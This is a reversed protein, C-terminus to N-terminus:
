QESSENLILMSSKKSKLHENIGFKISELAGLIVGFQHLTPEKSYQSNIFNFIKQALPLYQEKTIMLKEQTM